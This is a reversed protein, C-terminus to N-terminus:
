MDRNQLSPSRAWLSDNLDVSEVNLLLLHFPIKNKTSTTSEPGWAGLKDLAESTTPLPHMPKYM